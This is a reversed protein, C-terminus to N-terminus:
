KAPMQEAVSRFIELDVYNWIQRSSDPTGNSPGAVQDLTNQAQLLVGTVEHTLHLVTQPDPETGDANSQMVEGVEEAYGALAANMKAIADDLSQQQKPDLHASEILADRSQRSRIRQADEATQFAVMKDVPSATATPSSDSSAVLTPLPSAKASPQSNDSFDPFPLRFSGSTTCASKKRAKFLDKEMDSLQTRSDSLERRPGLGGLLFGLVLAVVAAMVLKVQEGEPLFARQMTVGSSM